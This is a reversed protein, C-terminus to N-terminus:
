PWSGASGGCFDVVAPLDGCGACRRDSDDYADSVIVSCKTGFLGMYLIMGILAFHLNIVRGGSILCQFAIIIIGIMFGAFILSPFSTSNCIMAVSNLIDSLLKGDGVSYINFVM